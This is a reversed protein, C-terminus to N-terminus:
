SAVDAQTPESRSYNAASKKPTAVSEDKFYWLAQPITKCDRCAGDAIRFDQAPYLGLSGDSTAPIVAAQATLTLLALIVVVPIRNKNKKM